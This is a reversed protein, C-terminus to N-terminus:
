LLYYCISVFVVTQFNTLLERKFAELDLVFEYQIFLVQKLRVKM